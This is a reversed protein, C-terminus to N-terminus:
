KGDVEDNYADIVRKLDNMADYSRDLEVTESKPDHYPRDRRDLFRHINRFAKKYLSFGASDLHGEGTLERRLNAKILLHEATGIERHTTEHNMANKISNIGWATSVYTKSGPKVYPKSADKKWEQQETCAYYRKDPDLFGICYDQIAEPSDFQLTDEKSALDIDYEGLKAALFRTRENAGSRIEKWMERKGREDVPCVPTDAREDRWRRDFFTGAIISRAEEDEIDEPKM